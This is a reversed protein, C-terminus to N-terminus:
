QVIITLNMGPHIACYIHYTGPASFPGVTVSNNNLALNNLVVAGPEVGPVPQNSASWSGNTLTHPVPVDDVIVLKDGTHLAIIDPAFSNGTLHVTETGVQASDAGGAAGPQAIAGIVIAGIAIGALLGIGPALWRPAHAPEHRLTQALKAVSAGLVMLMLPPQVVIFFYSARESLPHTITYLPFGPGVHLALSALSVLLAIVSAWRWRTAVVGAAILYALAIVEPPFFHGLLVQPLAVTIYVGAAILLATLVVLDLISFRRARPRTGSIASIGSPSDQIVTM